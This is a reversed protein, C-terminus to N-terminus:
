QLVQPPFAAVSIIKISSSVIQAAELHCHKNSNPFRLTQVWFHSVVDPPNKVSDICIHM